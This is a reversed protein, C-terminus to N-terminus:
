LAGIDQRRYFELYLSVKGTIELHHPVQPEIVISDGANVTVVSGEDNEIAYDVSGDWVILKVWVGEKTHHSKQLALPVTHENFVPTERYKILDEPFDAQM